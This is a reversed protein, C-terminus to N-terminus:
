SAESDALLKRLLEAYSRCVDETCQSEFLGISVRAPGFQQDAILLRAALGLTWPTDPRDLGFRKLAALLWERADLTAGRDECLADVRDAARQYRGDSLAVFARSALKMADDAEDRLFRIMDLNTTLRANSPMHALLGLLRRESADYAALTSAEIDLETLAIIAEIDFRNNALVKEYTNRADDLRELRRYVSALGRITPNDQPAQEVAEEFWPLAEEYRGLEEYAQALRYAALGDMQDITYAQHLHQLGAAADGQKVETMGWLQFAGSRVSPADHVLERKACQIARDYDGARQYSWGLREWVRPVDPFLMAIRETKKLPTTYARAIPWSVGILVCVTVIALSVGFARPVTSLGRDRRRNHAAVLITVLFWALGIIPLYMYRDAALINRAPFFPLTDGIGVLFWLAAWRCARSRWAFWAIIALGSLAVVAARISDSDFFNVHPPTPYYSCLGAPWLFHEFYFALAMLVRVSSPGHLSEAGGSFLDAAATSWLNVGVFVAVTAACPLWISWFRRDLRRASVMAVIWLLIPLGARVKSITCFLTFLICLVASTYRGRNLWRHFSLMSVLAFLTSLLMMRGNIWSVVEVQFPHVAFLLAVWAAVTWASEDAAARGGEAGSPDRRGSDAAQVDRGLRFVILAVLVSNLAHLWMNTLHFLWAGQEVSADFLGFWEAVVFELQFSVLPLPQYLDRHVIGFLEVTHAISPHNVLIHDLVLRHDDGGVFGGDIAPWAMVMAVGAVLILWGIRRWTRRRVDDHSIDNM